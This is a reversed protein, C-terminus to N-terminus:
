TSIISSGYRLPPGQLLPSSFSFFFFGKKLLVGAEIINQRLGELGTGRRSSLFFRLSFLKASPSEGLM